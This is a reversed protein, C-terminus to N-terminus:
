LLFLVHFYFISILLGHFYLFISAVYLIVKGHNTFYIENKHIENNNVKSSAKKEIEKLEAMELLKLQPKTFMFFSAIAIVVCVVSIVAIKASMPASGIKKLDNIDINQLDQILEGIDIESLKKM